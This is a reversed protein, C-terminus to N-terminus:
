SIRKVSFASFLNQANGGQLIASVKLDGQSNESPIPAGFSFNYSSAPINLIYRGEPLCYFSFSQNAKVKAMIDPHAANIKGVISEYDFGEAKYLAITTNVKLEGLVIGNVNMCISEPVHIDKDVKNMRIMSCGFLLMIVALLGVLFLSKKTISHLGKM